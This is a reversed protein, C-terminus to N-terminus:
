PRPNAPDSYSKATGQASFGGVAETGDNFFNADFQYTTPKQYVIDVAVHTHCSICAGNNINLGSASTKQRTILDSTTQFEKHAETAGTDSAEGTLGFGGAELTTMRNTSGYHCDPCSKTTEGDLVRSYHGFPEAGGHCEICSVLSAAHYESGPNVAKSGAKNFNTSWVGRSGSPPTWTLAPNTPMQSYDAKFPAFGENKQTSTDIPVGSAYLPMLKEQQLGLPETPNVIDAPSLAAMVNGHDVKIVGGMATQLEALTMTNTMAVTPYKVSGPFKEQEFDSVTLILTRKITGAANTYGIMGYANDGSASGAEIRHCYECKFAAHPAPTGTVVNTGSASIEASVDGHCKVCDIQNGTADINKFDHQGSFLAVTSPLAYLGIGIFAILLISIKKNM